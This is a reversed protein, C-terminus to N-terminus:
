EYYLSKIVNKIEFPLPQDRGPMSNYNRILVSIVAAFFLARSTVQFVVKLLARESWPTHLHGDGAQPDFADEPGHVPPYEL